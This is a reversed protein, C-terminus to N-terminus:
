ETQRNMASVRLNGWQERLVSMQKRIEEEDKGVVIGENILQSGVELVSGVSTEHSTLIM